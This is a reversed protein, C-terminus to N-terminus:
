EYSKFEKAIKAYLKQLYLAMGEDNEAKAELEDVAKQHQVPDILKEFIEDADVDSENVLLKIGTLLVIVEYNELKM